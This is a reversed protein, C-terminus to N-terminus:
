SSEPQVTVDRQVVHDFYSGLLDLARNVRTQELNRACRM